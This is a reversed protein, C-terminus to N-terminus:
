FTPTVLGTGSIVSIAKPYRESHLAVYNYVRLLVSLQDAHPERFAEARPVGEYLIVDDSRLGIVRDEDTGTGLNTPMNADVYVPLGLMQGVLGDASVTGLSTALANQPRNAEPLVLPRDATDSAALMWNWRRPHMFWKDAPLFRGLQVQNLADAGKPYLAAVTPAADTYTVANLGTVNLLGLKGAANNSLVYRDIKQALDMMLDALLVEDTNVPSQEILQLSVVQQGALTAVKAEVSDTTADTNQVATNQVATNQTAQEATATGTVLRPLNISDTGPPLAALRVQNAAVRAARAFSVYEAVMWAPPVFEGGAGDTGSLARHELAVERNNRRLRDAADPDAHLNASVLDRVWSHGRPDDRHYTRGGGLHYGSGSRGPGTQGLEVALRGVRGQRREDEELEGIRTDLGTIEARKADFAAAEDGRLDRNEATPAALVQDRESALARRRQRLIELVTM